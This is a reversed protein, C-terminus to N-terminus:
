VFYLTRCLIWKLFTCCDSLGNEIKYGLPAYGGNFLGREARVKKAAISKQRSQLVQHQGIGVTLLETLFADPNDPDGLTNTCSYLTIGLRRLMKRLHFWDDVDRSGRSIDYIVVADFKHDAADELLENMGARNMNTGTKAEDVYPHPYIKLQNRSCFSRIEELQAAITLEQQNATSYRAYAAAIKM